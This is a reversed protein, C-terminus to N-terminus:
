ARCRRSTITARTASIASPDPKSPNTPRHYLLGGGEEGAIGALHLPELSLPTAAGREWDARLVAIWPVVPIKAVQLLRKSVDKDMGIASGLVGAGVFPVGALDLLGQITGDEGYTGHLVPFVVDVIGGRVPEAPLTIPEGSTLTKQIQDKAPLM